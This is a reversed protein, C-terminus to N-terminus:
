YRDLWGCIQPGLGRPADVGIDFKAGFYVHGAGEIWHQELLNAPARALAPYVTEPIVVPDQPSHVFLVPRNLDSLHSSVGATAYYDEVDGFGYRPVVTLADYERISDIRNVRDWPTPERGHEVVGRYIRRLESLIHRRYVVQGPADLARSAASLDVPPCVAAVARVRSQTLPDTAARMCLHGGLSFGVLFIRDYSAFTRDRLAIHVDDTLGAHYFDGGVGDTGRLALRLVAWGRAVAEAAVPELYSSTPSGGLGHVVVVLTSSPASSYRGRLTVEGIGPEDFNTQFPTSAPWKPPRFLERATPWVTRFHAEARRLTRKM